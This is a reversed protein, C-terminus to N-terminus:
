STQTSTTFPLRGMIGEATKSCAGCSPSSPRRQPFSNRRCFPVFVLSFSVESARMVLRRREESLLAVARESSRKVKKAKKKMTQIDTPNQIVDYYDPAEERNVPRQFPWSSHHKTLVELCNYIQEHLPLASVSTAAPAAAVGKETWGFEQVGPVDGPALVCSPDNQASVSARLKRGSSRSSCRLASCGKVSNLRVTWCDLGPFVKPPKLTFIAEQVSQQQRRLMEALRLYDVRPSIRCEM